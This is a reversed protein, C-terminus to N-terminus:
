TLLGTNDNVSVSVGYEYQQAPWATLPLVAWCHQLARLGALRQLLQGLVQRM